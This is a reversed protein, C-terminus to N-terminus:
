SGYQLRMRDAFGRALAKHDQGYVRQFATDVDGTEGMARLLDNVGGQGRQGILHEVFALATLYFGNVGQIRGDALAKIQEANLESAIRKGEMYQAFGEHVDRPCVGRSMDAVFAHTLEHVLVRDIDPTLAATLGGIPIRIRGDLHNYVGGSWRPAGAADYYAEESFLIVPVPAAPQQDFVGTLTSFHRELARLIERGVDEHESGDYRVHFHALQKESMGKEDHLGKEVHALMQRTTPDDEVELSARLAEVAERNRDQRLLAQGLARLASANGPSLALIERATAEAELWSSAELLVNVLSARAALSGPRLAIARRLFTTAEAYRRASKEQGAATVLISEALLLLGKEEPYRLLLAEIAKVDATAVPARQRRAALLLAVREQDAPAMTSAPKLAAADLAESEAAPFPAPSAEALIPPPSVPPHAARSPARQLWSNPGESWSGFTLLGAVAVVTLLLPMALQSALSSDPPPERRRPLPALPPTPPLAFASRPKLKAFVVGCRPCSAADRAEQGCRPCAM